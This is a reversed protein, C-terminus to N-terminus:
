MVNCSLWIYVSLTKQSDVYMCVHCQVGYFQFSISLVLTEFTLIICWLYIVAPLRYLIVRLFGMPSWIVLKGQTCRFCTRSMTTAILFPACLVGLQKSSPLGAHNEKGTPRQIGPNPSKRGAQTAPKLSSPLFLLFQTVQRGQLHQQRFTWHLKSTFLYIYNM